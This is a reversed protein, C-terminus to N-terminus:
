RDRDRGRRRRRGEDGRDDGEPLVTALYASALAREEGSIPATGPARLSAERMERTIRDWGRADERESAITSAGHCQLCRLAVADRGRALEPSLSAFPRLVLWAPPVALAALLLTAAALSGGLLPLRDGFRRFRRVVAVKALLLAVALLGLAGHVAGAASLERYEWARPLMETLLAACALLFVWGLGRHVNTWLRPATSVGHPDRGTPDPAMPFRWLWAMLGANVVAIAAVALGLRLTLAASV